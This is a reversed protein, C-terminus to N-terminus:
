SEGLPLTRVDQSKENPVQRVVAKMSTSITAKHFDGSVVVLVGGAILDSVTKIVTTKRRELASKYKNQDESRTPTVPECDRWAKALDNLAIGEQGIHLGLPCRTPTDPVEFGNNLFAERLGPFDSTNAQFITWPNVAIAPVLVGSDGHSIITFSVPSISEADRLKISELERAKGKQKLSLMWDCSGELVSSGRYTNGYKVTHHSVVVTMGESAWGSLHSTLPTVAAQSNEDLGPISASLTDVIVLSPLSDRAEIEQDLADQLDEWTKKLGLNLPRQAYVFNENPDLEHYDLYARFRHGWSPVAEQILALVWGDCDPRLDPHGLLPIRRAVANALELLFFSKGCGPAGILFGLGTPVVGPILWRPEPQNMLDDMSCFRIKDQSDRDRSTDAISQTPGIPEQYKPSFLDFFEADSLQEAVSSPEIPKSPDPKM